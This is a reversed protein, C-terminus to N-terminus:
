GSRTPQPQSTRRMASKARSTPRSHPVPRSRPSLAALRAALPHPSPNPGPHSQSQRQAAIQPHRRKPEPPALDDHNPRHTPGSQAATTVPGPSRGDTTRHAALRNKENRAVKTPATLSAPSTAPAADPWTAGNGPATRSHGNRKSNTADHAPNGRHLAAEHAAIPDSTAVPPRDPGPGRGASPPARAPAPGPAAATEASAPPAARRAAGTPGGHRPRPEPGTNPSVGRAPVRHALRELRLTRHGGRRRDVGAATRAVETAARDAQDARDARHRGVRARAAEM